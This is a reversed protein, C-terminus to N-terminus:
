LLAMTLQNHSSKCLFKSLHLVELLNTLRATHKALDFDDAFNLLPPVAGTSEQLIAVLEEMNKRQDQCRREKYDQLPHLGM